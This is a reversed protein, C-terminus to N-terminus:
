RGAAIVEVTATRGPIIRVSDPVPDLAIRVPIRQALRVPGHHPNDHNVFGGVFGVM